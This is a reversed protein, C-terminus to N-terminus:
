LRVSVSNSKESVCIGRLIDRRLRVISTARPNKHKDTIGIELIQYFCLCRPSIERATQTKVGGEIGCKM